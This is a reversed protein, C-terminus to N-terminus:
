ARSARDAIRLRNHVGDVGHVGRAIADARLIDALSNVFGTLWVNGERTGVRIDMVALAPVALIADEVHRTISVDTFEGTHQALTAPAFSGGAILLSAVLVLPAKIM